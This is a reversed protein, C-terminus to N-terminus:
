KQEKPALKEAGLKSPKSKPKATDPMPERRVLADAHTVPAGVATILIRLGEIWEDAEALTAFGECPYTRDPEMTALVDFRGDERDDIRCFVLRPM